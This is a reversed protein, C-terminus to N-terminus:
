QSNGTAVSFECVEPSNVDHQEPNENLRLNSKEFTQERYLRELLESTMIGDEPAGFSAQLLLFTSIYILKVTLKWKFLFEHCNKSEGNKSIEDRYSLESRVQWTKVARETGSSFSSYEM